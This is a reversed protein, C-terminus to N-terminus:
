DRFDPDYEPLYGWHTSEEISDEAWHAPVSLLMTILEQWQPTRGDEGLCTFPLHERNEIGVVSVFVRSRMLRYDESWESRSESQERMLDLPGFESPGDVWSPVGFLFWNYNGPRGFYHSEIYSIYRSDRNLWAGMHYEDIDSLTSQNLAWGSTGLYRYTPRSPRLARVVLYIATKGGRFLAQVEHDADDWRDYTVSENPPM